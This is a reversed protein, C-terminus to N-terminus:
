RKWKNGSLDIVTHIKYPKREDENEIM